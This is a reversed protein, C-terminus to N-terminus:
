VIAYQQLLELAKRIGRTFFEPTLFYSKPLPPSGPIIQMQVRYPVTLLDSQLLFTKIFCNETFVM